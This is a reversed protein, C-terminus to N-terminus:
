KQRRRFVYGSTVGMVASFTAFQDQGLQSRAMHQSESIDCNGRPVVALMEVTHTDPRLVIGASVVRTAILIAIKQVYACHPVDDILFLGVHLENNDTIQERKSPPALDPRMGCESTQNRLL